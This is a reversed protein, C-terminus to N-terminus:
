HKQRLFKRETKINRLNIDLSAYFERHTGEEDPNGNYMGGAGYGIAVSLWDPLSTKLLM